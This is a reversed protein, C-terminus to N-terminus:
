AVPAADEVVRQQVRNKGAHKAEYMLEDAVKLLAKVDDPPSVFTVAGISASVPYGLRDAVDRVATQIREIPRVAATADTESFILAFEDGGLRGVVDTPRTGTCLAASVQELVADGASHGFTDNVSKFGDLDVYVATLPRGSRRSRALEQGARDYFSRANLAGTLADVRALAREQELARRLARTLGAVVVNTASRVAFNWVPVWAAAPEHGAVLDSLPFALGAAVAVLVAAPATGLWATGLIPVLYFVSFALEAGTLYDLAAVVGVLGLGLVLIAAPSRRELVDLASTSM